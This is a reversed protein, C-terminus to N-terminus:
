LVCEQSPERIEDILKCNAESFLIRKHTFFTSFGDYAKQANNRLEEENRPGLSIPSVLVQMAEEALVLLGYLEKIATAGDEHLKSFRIRNEDLVKQYGAKWGELERSIESKREELLRTLSRRESNSSPTTPTRSM